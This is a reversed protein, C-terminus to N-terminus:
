NNIAKFRYEKHFCQYYSVLFTLLATYVILIMGFQLGPSILSLLQGAYKTNLLIIALIFRMPIATVNLLIRDKVSKKQSGYLRGSRFRRLADLSLQLASALLMVLMVLDKNNFGVQYKFGLLFFILGFAVGWSKINSRFTGWIQSKIEDSTTAKFRKELEYFKEKGGFDTRIITNVADDFTLSGDYIELASLLHDYVETLTERYSFIGSLYQYLNQSQSQTIIM